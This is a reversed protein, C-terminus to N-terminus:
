SATHSPPNLERIEGPLVKAVQVRLRDDADKTKQVIPNRSKSVRAVETLGQFQPM